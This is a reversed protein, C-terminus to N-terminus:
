NEYVLVVSITEALIYKGSLCASSLPPLSQLSLSLSLCVSLCVSLCLCLCVSLCVSLYVSLSLSVSLCVSVCVSQCVSISVSLSLSLCVSLCVSLSLCVSVCVPVSVTVGLRGLRSELIVELRNLAQRNASFARCTEVLRRVGGRAVKRDNSQDTAGYWKHQLRAALDSVDLVMDQLMIYSFPFCCGSSEAYRSTLSCGYPQNSHDNM